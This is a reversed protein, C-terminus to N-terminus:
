GFTIQSYPFSTKEMYLIGHSFILLGKQSYKWYYIELLITGIAYKSYQKWIFKQLVIKIENSFM